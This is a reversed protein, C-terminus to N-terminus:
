HITLQVAIVFYTCSKPRAKNITNKTIMAARWQKFAWIIMVEPALLALCMLFMRRRRLMWSTEQLHPVNPHVSVWTVAFTTALCSWVIDWVSRGPCTTTPCEDRVHVSIDCGSPEASHTSAAVSAASTGYHRFFFLFALVILM